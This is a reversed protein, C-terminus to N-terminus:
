RIHNRAHINRCDEIVAKILPLSDHNSIDREDKEFKPFVGALSGLVANLELSLLVIAKLCLPVNEEMRNTRKILTEFSDPSIEIPSPMSKQHVLENRCRILIRLFNIAPGDLKLSHGCVLPPVVVWKAVPDLKDLFQSAYSDSLHIAAFDFAAAEVCMGSFVITKIAADWIRRDQALRPEPDENDKLLIQPKTKELLYDNFSTEAIGYYTKALGGMRGWTERIKFERSRTQYWPFDEFEATM